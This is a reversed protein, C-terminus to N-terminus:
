KMDSLANQLLDGECCTLCFAFTEWFLAIEPDVRQCEATHCLRWWRISSTMSISRNVLMSLLVWRPKSFFQLLLSHLFFKWAEALVPPLLAIFLNWNSSFECTLCILDMGMVIWWVEKWGKLFITSIIRNLCINFEYLPDNLTTFVEVHQLQFENDLVQNFSVVVIEVLIGIFKKAVVEYISLYFNEFWYPIYKSHRQLLRKNLSYFLLRKKIKFLSIYACPGICIKTWTYKQWKTKGRKIPRWRRQKMGDVVTYFDRSWCLTSCTAQIWDEMRLLLPNPNPSHSCAQIQCGRISAESESTIVLCKM